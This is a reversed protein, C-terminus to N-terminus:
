SLPGRTSRRGAPNWDKSNVLLVDIWGDGDADIFAAGSGLTEPLYKKGTKGANHVFKIGAQATVDNFVVPIAPPLATAGLLAAALLAAAVLVGGGTLGWVLKMKTPEGATSGGTSKGAPKLYVSKTSPTERSPAPASGLGISEHDHISQRENNDEPSILRRKATISQSSEEAKFRQFLKGTRAGGNARYRGPRSVGAHRHLADASRGSRDGGGKRVSRDIRQVAAEPVAATRGPELGRPRASVEFYGGGPIEARCRLRQGGEERPPSGSTNLCIRGLGANVELAKQIFPKARDTEGEQILARAVNLWGDAYGPEAETVKTFAYEAGKVDGQLLLGIGYDNWRERM